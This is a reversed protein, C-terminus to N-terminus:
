HERRLRIRPRMGCRCGFDTGPNDMHSKGPKQVGAPNPRGHEDLEHSDTWNFEKGDCIGHTYRVNGPVHEKPSKDHPRKVCRWIYAQAGADRYRVEKFKSMLLRSEQRALFKAKNMAEEHSGQITKTIKLIPPIRTERRIGSMVDEFINKRLEKIQEETWDKIWLKMNNQWEDAIKQRQEKTLQPTVAINKVNKQFSKDAKWLTRDFIDACKFQDALEEPIVKALRRDINDMKELFRIESASIVSRIDIPIDKRELRYSPGKPNFVAGMDKLVKSIAANFSGTFVNGSYVVKGTFLADILPNSHVANHLAKQPVGLARLLPYYIEDRFFKKLRAELQDMDGISDEIPKLEVIKEKM